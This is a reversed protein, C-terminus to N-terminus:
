GLPTEPAPHVLNKYDISFRDEGIVLMDELVNRVEISAKSGWAASGDLLYRRTFDRGIDISRFSFSLGAPRRRHLYDLSFGHPRWKIREIHHSDSSLRINCSDGNRLV